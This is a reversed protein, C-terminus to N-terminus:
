CHPHECMIRIFFTTTVSERRLWNWAAQESGDKYGAVQFAWCALTLRFRDILSRYAAVM